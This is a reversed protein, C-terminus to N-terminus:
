DPDALVLLTGSPPGLNTLLHHLQMEGRIGTPEKWFQRGALTTPVSTGDLVAACPKPRVGLRPTVAHSASTSAAASATTTGTEAASM